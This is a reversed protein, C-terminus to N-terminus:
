AGKWKHCRKWKSNEITCLYQNCLLFQQNCRQGWQRVSTCATYCCYIISIAFYSTTNWWKIWKHNASVDHIKHKLDTIEFCLNGIITFLIANYVKRLGTKKFWQQECTKLKVTYGWINYFFWKWLRGM